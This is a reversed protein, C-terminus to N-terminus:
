PTHYRLIGNFSSNAQESFLGVQAPNNDIPLTCFQVGDIFLLLQNDSKACRINYSDKFLEKIRIKYIYPNQDEADKNTFRLAATKVPHSFIAENYFPNDANKVTSVPAPLWKGDQKYEAYVKEFMDDVFLDNNGYAQRNLMIGDIWVPVDFTYGKEIFDTYKIDAYHTKWNEPKYNESFVSKGNAIRTVGIKQADYDFVVKVYNKNDIYVPYAGTKGKGEENTIQTTFEYRTLLDGKFAKFEDSITHLGNDTVLYEGAMKERSLSNGWASIHQDYEDWGITYTVGEFSNNGAESFLGPIGKGAFPTQISHIGPAPIGDIKITFDNYNREVRISHYVGFRFDVPLPYAQQKLVNGECLEMFWTNDAANLGIKLWNENDLWWAIVGAKTNTKIGSEFLYATASQEKQPYLWQTIGSLTQERNNAYTAKAPEPFYGNTKSSSINDAYMKKNHFHIQNIYQSRRERNKNAMYVLWWQFGNPGRVINPQGPSYLIDDAKENKTDFLAVNLYNKRGKASEIALLNKGNKLLAKDKQSLNYICHDAGKKDYIITGNLYVRTDGDHLLRLALNRTNADTVFEKRIYLSQANWESGQHRTTSGAIVESAFGGKGKQWASDDYGPMTWNAQPQETSYNFYPDYGNGIRLIDAYKEELITQNSLLLPYPYKNGNNFLLPSGAESVGLQYNGWDTGTHNANYMMYYRGRYKIVWPGEAVRNDITEWTGPLSAFLCFPHGDFTYPDKMPRVWITNGDTFRVMYMYLKGDDDKFVHPDIRNDMWTDKIPEHYSGLISDSEAHAIHVIHKDKGWHNVSWYLHFKGNLYIMDNAHIQNNKAGTGATWENDMDIVHVPGTWNTLDKSIYFDGNTFVGGIYYKGNFKIVGADAVGSLVPNQINQAQLPIISVSFAISLLLAILLKNSM